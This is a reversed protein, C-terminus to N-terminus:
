RLVPYLQFDGAPPSEGSGPDVHGEALGDGLRFLHITDDPVSRFQTRLPDDREERLPGDGAPPRFLKRALPLPPLFDGDLGGALASAGVDRLYSLDHRELPHKASKGFVTEPQNGPLLLRLRSDALDETIRGPRHHLFENQHDTRLPSEARSFDFHGPM